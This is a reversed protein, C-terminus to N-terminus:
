AILYQVHHEFRRCATLGQKESYYNESGHRMCLAKAPANGAHLSEIFNQEKDFVKQPLKIIFVHHWYKTTFIMDEQYNFIVGYSIRNVSKSTVSNSFSSIGEASSNAICSTICLLVFLTRILTSFTPPFTCLKHLYGHPRAALLNNQTKRQVLVIPTETNHEVFM